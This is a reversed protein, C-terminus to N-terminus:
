GGADKQPCVPEPGHADWAAGARRIIGDSRETVSATYVFMIGIMKDDKSRTMGRISIGLAPPVPPRQNWNLDPFLKSWVQYKAAILSIVDALAIWELYSSVVFNLQWDGARGEGVGEAAVLTLSDNDRGLCQDTRRAPSFGLSVTKTLAAPSAKGM